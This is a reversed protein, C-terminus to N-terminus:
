NNETDGDPPHAVAEDVSDQGGDDTEEDPHLNGRQDNEQAGRPIGFGVLHSYASNMAASLQQTRRSAMPCELLITARHSEEALCIRLWRDLSRWSGSVIRSTCDSRGDRPYRSVQRAAYKLVDHNGM